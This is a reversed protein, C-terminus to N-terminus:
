QTWAPAEGDKLYYSFWQLVKETLDKQNNEEMLSHDEKPYLLLTGLKGLRWLATQLEISQLPSV